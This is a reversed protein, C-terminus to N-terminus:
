MVSCCGGGGSAPADPAKSDGSKAKAKNAATSPEHDEADGAPILMESWAGAEFLSSADAGDFFHPDKDLWEVATLDVSARNAYTWGPWLEEADAPVEEKAMREFKYDLEEPLDAHIKGSSPKIPPTIAGVALMDWKLGNFFPHRKLEAYGGSRCGLRKTPDLTMLEDMVELINPIQAFTERETKYERKLTLEKVEASAADGDLKSSFPLSGCGWHYACVGLTWIDPSTTYPESKIQEPAWFGKTGKPKSGDKIPGGSVDACMGFDCLRAHGLSDLLVNKDKLDRYVFGAAHLTELALVISALYFRTGKPGLGPKKNNKNKKLYYSLDGGVMMRLALVLDKDDVYAYSCDLIFPSRLTTTIKWELLAMTVHKKEKLFHMNQRKLAYSIGRFTPIFSILFISLHPLLGVLTPPQTPLPLSSICFM